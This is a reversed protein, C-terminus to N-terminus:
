AAAPTRLGAVLAIAGSVLLVVASVTPAHRSVSAFRGGLAAAGWVVAMGVGIFALALGLSFAGVMVVGLAVKGVTLALLMVSVSAPCPLLGGSIGFLVVQGMGVREGTGAYAPLAHHHGDHEEEEHDHDHHDHGHDHGHDHHRRRLLRRLLIWGGILMVVAGSVIGLWRLGDDALTARGLWLAGAALAVVVAGHAVAASLGLILAERWTGRIGVLYAATLAKAHGPELAHLAGLGIAAPIYVLSLESM